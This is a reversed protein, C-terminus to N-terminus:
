PTRAFEGVVAITEGVFPQLPLLGGDNKLLVACEAAAARALAHHGDADVGPRATAEEGVDIVGSLARDGLRLVRAVARDLVAEDLEGSRAAAVIAADSVGLDPPMELDLGADLAAVRDHVAGWDSMVLGEFGWEDRLVETLLWHHESAYTGNVKNYACMVTWPQASTVVREFAPLYIERLTREDVEASVRLRDTEQNNAAYHKLSTGVGLSQLGQVMATALEGTLWPDEAVYEFNRGCLPSRKMNIGPGLVVSVGCARAERALAQGVENFLNPNWSSGLASATPFCTAPVSGSLGVHDAEALQARLGHPGDSVMIAEIGVREVPATHWFDSGLTLSAKEELSLQELVANLDALPDPM